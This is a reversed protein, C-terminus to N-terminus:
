VCATTPVHESTRVHETSGPSIFFSAVSRISATDRGSAAAQELGSLYADM